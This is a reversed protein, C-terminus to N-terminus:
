KRTVNECGGIFDGENERNADDAVIIVKGEKIRSYSRRNYELSFQEM